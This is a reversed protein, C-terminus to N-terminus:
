RLVYRTIIQAHETYTIKSREATETDSAREASSAEEALAYDLRRVIRRPLVDDSRKHATGRPRKKVM